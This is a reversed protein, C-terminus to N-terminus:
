AAHAQARGSRCLVSFRTGVGVKSAVDIRGGHEQVIKYAISLGLGTGKGVTKPPSSRISSRRCCTRRFATGTTPQIDVRVQEADPQTRVTVM